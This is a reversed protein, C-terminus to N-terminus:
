RWGTLDCLYDADITLWQDGRGTDWIVRGPAVSPFVDITDPRM